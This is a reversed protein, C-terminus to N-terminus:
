KKVGVAGIVRGWRNAIKNNYNLRLMKKGAGKVIGKRVARGGLGLFVPSFAWLLSFLAEGGLIKEVELGSKEMRARLETKTYPYEKGYIWLGLRSSVAKGFRYPPCKAHPVLICVKGGKVCAKAHIDIVEQRKPALFHEVTGNSHVMDWRPKFDYEFFDEQLFEAKLGFRNLNDKVLAMAEPSRDLFTLKAGRMGMLISDIGTGCGIELVRKGKFDSGLLMEYFKFTFPEKKFRVDKMGKWYESWNDSM